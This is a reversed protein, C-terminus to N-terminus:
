GKLFDTDFDIKGMVHNCVNQIMRYFACEANMFDFAVEQGLMEQYKDALAQPDNNGAEAGANQLMFNERRFQDVKQKLEPNEKLLDRYYCYERYETTDKLQEAFNESLEDINM